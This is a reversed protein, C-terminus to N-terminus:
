AMVELLISCECRDTIWYGAAATSFSTCIETTTAPTNHGHQEGDCAKLGQQKGARDTPSEVDAYRPTRLPLRRETPWETVLRATLPRWASEGSPRTAVEDRLLV